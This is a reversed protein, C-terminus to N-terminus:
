DEEFNNQYKGSLGIVKEVQAKAILYDYIAQSYSTQTVTLSIQTDLIEIQTGIGNKYRSQAIDVARAAQTLSKEQARVREYSELMKLRAQVLQIRLGEFAKNRTLEIKEKDVIAQEIRANRSFGDFIPVKLNLGVTVVNAWFYNSFEFTNDQTQWNYNAFGSLSPYYGSRQLSINRELVSSQFELAILMPNKQLLDEAPQNILVSDAEGLEFNGEVEINEDLNIALLNKLNDKAMEYNNKSQILLPNVNSLRVEARLFDYESSAGQNYQSKVNDFNAKAVEYSKTSVDILQKTLLVTYFAQKVMFIIDDETSQASYKYYNYYDGAMRIATNVSMDFITQNLTVMLNFSNAAGLSITQTTSSPNFPSNPPIFLVQSKINRTYDARGNISPWVNSYAEEIQATARDIDKRALRIDYNNKLALEIAKDLTLTIVSDDEAQPLLVPASFLICLLFFLLSKYKGLLLM